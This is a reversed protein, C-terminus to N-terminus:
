SANKKLRGFGGDFTATKRNHCNECLSQHNSERWFLEEDGSHPIKHDVRTALVNFENRKAHVGLPDVCFPNRELFGIRYDRWKWDYGRSTSNPRLDRPRRAKGNAQCTECFANGRALGRCGFTKCPKAARQPM